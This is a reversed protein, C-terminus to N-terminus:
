KESYPPTGVISHIDPSRTSPKSVFFMSFATFPLSHGSVSDSPRVQETQVLKARSM